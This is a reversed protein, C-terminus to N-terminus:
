KFKPHTIKRFNCYRNLEIPINYCEDPLTPSNNKPLIKNQGIQNLNILIPYCYDCYLMLSPWQMPGIPQNFWKYDTRSTGSWSWFWINVFFSFISARSLKAMTNPWNNQTPGINCKAVMSPLPWTYSLLVMLEFQFLFDYLQWPCTYNPSGDHSIACCEVSISETFPSTHYEWNTILWRGRYKHSPM